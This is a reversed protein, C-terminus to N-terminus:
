KLRQVLGCFVRIVTESKDAMAIMGRGTMERMARQEKDIPVIGGSVDNCIVIHEKFEDIIGQASIGAKVCAMVYKEFGYIVKKNLDIKAEDQSCNFIDSESIGYEKKVFDLKGQYAGGFVLIM